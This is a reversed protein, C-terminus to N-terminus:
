ESGRVEDSIIGGEAMKRLDEVMMFRLSHMDPSIPSYEKEGPRRFQDVNMWKNIWTALDSDHVSIEHDVWPPGSKLDCQHFFDELGGENIWKEIKGKSEGTILDNRFIQAIKQALRFRSSEPMMGKMELVVKSLDSAKM